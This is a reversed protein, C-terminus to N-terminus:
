SPPKVDLVPFSACTAIGCMNSGRLINFYGRNGWGESWSCVRACAGFSSFPIDSISIYTGHIFTYTHVYTDIYTQTTVVTQPTGSPLAPFHM